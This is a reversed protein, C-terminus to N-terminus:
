AFVPCSFFSIFHFSLDNMCAEFCVQGLGDYKACFTENLARRGGRGGGEGVGM